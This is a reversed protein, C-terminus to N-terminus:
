AAERLAPLVDDLLDVSLQWLPGRGRRAPPEGREMARELAPEPRLEGALPLGLAGAVQDAALGAPSPGRVVVRLDDCMGAVSGAVRSAAAAARVEAPVVLLATTAEGLVARAADDVTRALDVVVLDMARRGAALVAQVAEVPVSRADGRDWSLVPLEEMRPLADVLAPGPVRGRTGALDPWRLGPDEEGGFVLDIGGGLPDADVLLARRGTRTATVALACALTTAGAGGRGGLVAVVAGIRTPPDAAEALRSVLWTAADPLFVVHEAGVEVARVWVGADDLDDGLLVVGERRPLRRVPGASAADDAVVVFPASAWFRAASGLDPVVDPEVGATATLRLLEELAADDATVLLPRRGGPPPVSPPVPRVM